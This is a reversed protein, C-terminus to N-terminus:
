EECSAEVLLQELLPVPEQGGGLRPNGQLGEDLICELPAEICRRGGCAMVSIGGGGDAGAFICEADKALNIIVVLGVHHCGLHRSQCLLAM